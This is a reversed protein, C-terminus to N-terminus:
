SFSPSLIFLNSWVVQEIDMNLSLIPLIFLNLFGFMLMLMLMVDCFLASGDLEGSMYSWFLLCWPLMDWSLVSMAGSDDKLLLLLTHRALLCAQRWLGHEAACLFFLGIRTINEM